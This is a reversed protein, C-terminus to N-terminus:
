VVICIRVESQSGRKWFLNHTLVDKPRDPNLQMRKTLHQLGDNGVCVAEDDARCYNIHVHRGMAQCVFSCMMPTGDDNTSFKRGEIELAVDDPPSIM